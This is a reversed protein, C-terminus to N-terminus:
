INVPIPMGRGVIMNVSCFTSLRFVFVQPLPRCSILSLLTRGLCAWGPCLCSDLGSGGNGELAENGDVSPISFIQLCTVRQLFRQFGYVNDSFVGTYVPMWFNIKNNLQAM